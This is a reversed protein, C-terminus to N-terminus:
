WQKKKSIESSVLKYTIDNETLVLSSEDLSVINFYRVTDKPNKFHFILLNNQRIYNGTNVSGTKQKLQYTFKGDILSFIDSSDITVSDTRTQNKVTSFKWDKELQQAFTLSTIFCFIAIISNKM